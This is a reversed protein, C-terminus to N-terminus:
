LREQEDWMGVHTRELRTGQEVFFVVVSAEDRLHEIERESSEGEPM